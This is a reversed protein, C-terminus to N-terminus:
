TVMAVQLLHTHLNSLVMRVKSVHGEDAVVLYLRYMLWVAQAAAQAVLLEL